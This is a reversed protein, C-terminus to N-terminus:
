QVDALRGKKMALVLAGTPGVTPAALVKAAAAATPAWAPVKAAAVVTPWGETPREKRVAPVLARAPGAMPAAAGKSTTAATPV